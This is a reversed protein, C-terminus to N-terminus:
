RPPWHASRAPVRGCSSRAGWGSRGRASSSNVRRRSARAPRQREPDPGSEEPAARGRRAPAPRSSPAAAGRRAQVSSPSTSRHPSRVRTSTDPAPVRRRHPGRCGPASPCRPSGSIRAAARSGPTPRIAARARSGAPPRFASRRPQSSARGGPGQIASSRSAEPRAHAPSRRHRPLHRHIVEDLPEGLPSPFYAAALM